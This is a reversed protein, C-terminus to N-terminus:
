HCVQYQSLSQIPIVSKGLDKCAWRYRLDRRHSNRPRSDQYRSRSSTYSPYSDSYQFETPANRFLSETDNSSRTKQRKESHNDSENSIYRRKSSQQQSSSPQSLQPRVEIVPNASSLQERNRLSNFLSSPDNSSTVKQRKAAQDDDSIYHRKSPKQRLPERFPLEQQPPQQPLSHQRPQQTPLQQHPQQPSEQRLQQLLSPQSQQLSPTQLRRRKHNSSKLNGLQHVMTDKASEDESTITDEASEYESITINKDVARPRKSSQQQSSKQQLNANRIAEVIDPPATSKIADLCSYIKDIEERRHQLAFDEKEDDEEEVSYDGLNDIDFDYVEDDEVQDWADENDNTDEPDGTDPADKDNATGRGGLDM